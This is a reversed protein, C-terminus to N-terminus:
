RLVLSSFWKFEKGLKLAREKVELSELIRDLNVEGVCTLEYVKTGRHRTIRLLGLDQLEEVSTRLSGLFPQVRSAAIGLRKLTWELEQQGVKVYAGHERRFQLALILIQESIPLYPIIDTTSLIGKKMKDELESKSYLRSIDRELATDMPGYRFCRFTFEPCVNEDRNLDNFLAAHMRNLLDQNYQYSTAEEAVSPLLDSVIEIYNPKIRALECKGRKPLGYECNACYIHDIFSETASFLENLEDSTVRGRHKHLLEGVLERLGDCCVWVGRNYLALTVLLGYNQIKRILLLLQDHIM